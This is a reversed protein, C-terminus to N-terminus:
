QPGSRMGKNLSSLLHCFLALALAAAGLLLAKEGGTARAFREAAGGLEPELGRGAAGGVRTAAWWCVAIVIAFVAWMEGLMTWAKGGSWGVARLRMFALASAFALNAAVLILLLLTDSM